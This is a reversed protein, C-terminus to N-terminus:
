ILDIEQARAGNDVVYYVRVSQGPRLTVVSGVPKGEPGYVKVDPAIKYTVPGAPTSIVLEAGNAAVSTVPGWDCKTRDTVAIARPAPFPLASLTLAVAALVANM